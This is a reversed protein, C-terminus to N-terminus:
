QRLEIVVADGAPPRLLEMSPWLYMGVLIRRCLSSPSLEYYDAIVEGPQWLSTPYFGGLPQQDHQAVWQGGADLCKVSVTYDRLVPRRAQWYLTLRMVEGQRVLDYGLLDIIEGLTEGVAHDGAELTPGAKIVTSVDLAPEDRTLGVRVYTVGEPLDFLDLIPEDTPWRSPPYYYAWGEPVKDQQGAPTLDAGFYHVYVRFDHQIPRHSQWHLSLGGTIVDYGALELDNTVLRELRRTPTIVNAVTVRLTNGQRTLRYRAPVRTSDYSYMLYVPRSAAEALTQDYYAREFPIYVQIAPEIPIGDVVQHYRLAGYIGAEVNLVADPETLRQAANRMRQVEAETRATIGASEHAWGPLRTGLLAFAMLVLLAGVLARPRRLWAWHGAARWLADVGAGIWLAYVLVAPILFVAVDTVTYVVAFVAQCLAYVLLLVGVARQRQGPQYLLWWLGLVGTLVGVAGFQDLLVRPVLEPWDPRLTVFAKWFSAGTIVDLTRAWAEGDGFRWPIYLYPLLGLLLLGLAKLWLRGRRWITRDVLFVFVLAAPALLLTTRHHALGLGGVLAAALLWGDAKPRGEQRDQMWRVLLYLISIVVLTHLAYVEAIVAQSWLLPSALLALATVAASVLSGNGWRALMYALAVAGAGVVASFANMRYAVTGTPIAHSWAWGLLTYLPYGTAHLVGLTYPVWQMEASDGVAVGPVLTIVYALGALIGFVAGGLQGRPRRAVRRWVQRQRSLGTDVAPPSANASPPSPQEVTNVTDCRRSFTLPKGRAYLLSAGHVRPM